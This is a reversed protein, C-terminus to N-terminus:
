LNYKFHKLRNFWGALNVGQDPARMVIKRYFNKRAEYIRAFIEEPDQGNLAALTNKGVIGDDKLGFLRQFTRIGSIGSNINWDVFIEAISQNVIQDAKCQNWYDRMIFMWQELSIKHLDEKTRNQGYYRRFTTLTVGCMTAGGRDSERDSWGGELQQLLPVYKDFDAM